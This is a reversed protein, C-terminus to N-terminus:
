RAAQATQTAQVVIGTATAPLPDLAQPQIPTGLAPITAQQVMRTATMWLAAPPADAVYVYKAGTRINLALTLAVGLAFGVVLLWWQFRLPQDNKRKEGMM